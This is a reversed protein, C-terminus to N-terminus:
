RQQLQPYRSSCTSMSPRLTSPIPNGHVGRTGALLAPHPLQRRLVTHLRGRHAIASSPTSKSVSWWNLTTVPRPPTLFVLASISTTTRRSIATSSRANAYDANSGLVPVYGGTNIALPNGGSGQEYNSLYYRLSSSGHFENEFAMAPASIAALVVAVAVVAAIKKLSMRAERSKSISPLSRNVHECFSIGATVCWRELYIKYWWEHLELPLTRFFPPIAGGVVHLLGVLSGTSCQYYFYPNM